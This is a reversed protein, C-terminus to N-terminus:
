KMCYKVSPAALGGEKRLKIAREWSILGKKGQWIFSRINREMMDLHAKSIGNVMM